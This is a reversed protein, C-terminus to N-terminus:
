SGQMDDLSACLFLTTHCMLATRVPNPKTSLCTKSLWSRALLRPPGGDDSEEDGFDASRGKRERWAMIAELSGGEPPEDRSARTFSDSGPETTHPRPPIEVPIDFERRTAPSEASKGILNQTDRGGGVDRTGGAKLAAIEAKLHENEERLKRQEDQFLVHLHSGIHM